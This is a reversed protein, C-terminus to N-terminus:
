GREMSDTMLGSRKNLSDSKRWGASTLGNAGDDGLRSVCRDNCPSDLGALTDRGMHMRIALIRPGDKGTAALVANTRIPLRNGDGLSVNKYGM